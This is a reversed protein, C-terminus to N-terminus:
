YIIQVYLFVDMYAFVFVYMFILICVYLSTSLLTQLCIFKHLYALLYQDMHMFMYIQFQCSILCRLAEFAYECM